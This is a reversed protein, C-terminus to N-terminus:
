ASATRSRWSEVRAIAFAQLVLRSRYPLVMAWGVDVTGLAVVSVQTARQFSGVNVIVSANSLPYASVVSKFRAQAAAAASAPDQARAAAAVAAQTAAELGAKADAIQVAAAGGLALLMVVPVCLALEVLSQGHRM